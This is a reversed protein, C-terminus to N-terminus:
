EAQRGVLPTRLGPLGREVGAAQRDRVARVLYTQLPADVGKVQLPPQAEAEFLGRVHSWTDHSIRLGGPPASQQMRAAIHVAAGMATNDADVGAGLAVDGTHVGVRVGAGAPGPGPGHQADGGGPPM